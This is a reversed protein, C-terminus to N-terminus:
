NLKKRYSANLENVVGTWYEIAWRENYDLSAELAREANEILKIYKSKTYEQTPM